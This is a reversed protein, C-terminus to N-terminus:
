GPLPMRATRIALHAIAEQTKIPAANQRL